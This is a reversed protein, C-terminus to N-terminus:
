CSRSANILRDFGNRNKRKEHPLVPKHNPYAQQVLDYTWIALLYLQFYLTM